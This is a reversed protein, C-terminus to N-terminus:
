VGPGIPLYRAVYRALFRAVAEENLKLIRRGYGLLAEGDPTLGVGRGARVFLERGVITELKKIQMSVASPTRFVQQAAKRFSGTDAIAVLTRLLDSDLVPFPGKALRTM